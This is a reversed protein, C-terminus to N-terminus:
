LKRKQTITEMFTQLERDNRVEVFKAQPYKEQLRAIEPAVRKEFRWIYKISKIRFAEPSDDARDDISTDKWLYRKIARWLCLWRSFNCYIVTDARAFRMELSQTANGDILWNDKNVMEQQIALFEDHNREIWNHTYFHKDIHMLLVVGNDHDQMIAVLNQVHQM